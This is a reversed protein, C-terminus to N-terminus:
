QGDKQGGKFNLIFNTFNNTDSLTGDCRDLVRLLFALKDVDLEQMEKLINPVSYKALFKIEDACDHIDMSRLDADRLISSRVELPVLTKSSYAGRVTELRLGGEKIGKSGASKIVTFFDFGFLEYLVNSMNRRTVRVTSESVGLIKSASSDTEGWLALYEEARKCNTFDAQMIYARVNNCLTYLESDEVTKAYNETLDLGRFFNKM